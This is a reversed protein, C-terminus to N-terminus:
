TEKTREPEIVMVSVHKELLSCLHKAAGHIERLEDLSRKDFTAQIPTKIHPKEAELAASCEDCLVSAGYLDGKGGRFADAIDVPVERGCKPCTCFVNKAHLIVGATTDEIKIKVYFM